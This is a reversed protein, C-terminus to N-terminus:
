AKVISGIWKITRGHLLCLKRGCVDNRTSTQAKTRWILDQVKSNEKRVLDCADILTALDQRTHQTNAAKLNYLIRVHEELKRLIEVLLVNKQPAIGVGGTGDIGIQGSSVKSLGAIADLTTSKGSGNPGLLMLIQGKTLTLRLSKSLM